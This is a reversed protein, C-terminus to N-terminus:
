KLLPHAKEEVLRSNLMLNIERKLLARRDNLRYVARALSVFRPGLDGAAECSYIGEIVQFLESNVARLEDVLSSLATSPAIARDRAEELSRLETVVNKLKAPDSIRRAKVELVTIKDFLEGASVEVLLSVAAYGGLPLRQDVAGGYAGNADGQRTM